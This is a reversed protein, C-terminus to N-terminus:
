EDSTVLEAAVFRQGTEGITGREALRVFAGAREEPTALTMPDEDPYAAARMATRMAGPDVIYVRTGSPALERAWLGALGDLAIKSVNYAGWRERPGLSVGSSAFLLAAGPALHPLLQRTLDFPAFVNAAMVEAFADPPYDALPVRPGLLGANHVVVDLRQGDHAVRAAVRANDEVRAADARLPVVDLGAASTEAALAALGSESRATAYVRHGRRAFALVLARGLGRTGGTVLTTPM